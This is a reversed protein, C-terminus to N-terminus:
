PACHLVYGCMETSAVDPRLIHLFDGYVVDVFNSSLRVFLNDASVNRLIRPDESSHIQLLGYAASRLLVLRERTNMSPKEKELLARVTMDVPELIAAQKGDYSTHGLLHAINPSSPEHGKRLSMEVAANCASEGVVLTIEASSGSLKAHYFSRQTKLSLKKVVEVTRSPFHPLPSKQSSGM